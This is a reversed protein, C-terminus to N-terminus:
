RLISRLLRATKADTVAAILDAETSKLANISQTKSRNFVTGGSFKFSFGTTSRRKTNDNRYAADVFCM